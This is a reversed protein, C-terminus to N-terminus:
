RLLDAVLKIGERMAFNKGEFQIIQENRFRQLVLFEQGSEIPLLCNPKIDLITASSSRFIGLAKDQIINYANPNIFINGTKEPNGFIVNPVFKYFVTNTHAAFVGNNIARMIRMITYWQGQLFVFYNVYKEYLKINCRTQLYGSPSSPLLIKFVPVRISEVNKFLIKEPIIYVLPHGLTVTAYTPNIGNGIQNDNFFGGGKRTKRTKRKGM